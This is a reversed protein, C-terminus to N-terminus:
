PGEFKSTNKSTEKETHFDDGFTQGNTRIFGKSFPSRTLQLHTERQFRPALLKSLPNCYLYSGNLHIKMTWRPFTTENTAYENDADTRHLYWVFPFYIRWHLAYNTRRVIRKGNSADWWCLLTLVSCIHICYIGSPVIMNTMDDDTQITKDSMEMTICVIKKKLNIRMENNWRCRNRRDM